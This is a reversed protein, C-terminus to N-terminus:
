WRSILFQQHLPLKSLTINYEFVNLLGAIAPSKKQVLIGMRFGPILLLPM